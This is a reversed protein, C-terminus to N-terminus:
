AAGMKKIKWNYFDEQVQHEDWHGVMWQATTDDYIRLFEQRDKTLQRKKEEREIERTKSMGPPLSSNISASLSAFKEETTLARFSERRAVVEPSIVDAAKRVIRFKKKKEPDPCKNDARVEPRSIDAPKKRKVRRVPKAEPRIIDPAESIKEHVMVPKNEALAASAVPLETVAQPHTRTRRLTRSASLKESAPALKNERAYEQEAKRVESPNDHFCPEVDLHSDCAGSMAVLCRASSETALFNEKKLEDIARRVARQEAPTTAGLLQYLSKKGFLPCHRNEKVYRRVAHEVRCRMPLSKDSIIKDSYAHKTSSYGVVRNGAGRETRVRSNSNM